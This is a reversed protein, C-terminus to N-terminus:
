PRVMWEATGVEGDDFRYGIRTGIADNAFSTMVLRRINVVQYELGEEPDPDELPPGPQGIWRKIEVGAFFDEEKADDLADCIVEEINDFDGVFREGDSSWCYRNM